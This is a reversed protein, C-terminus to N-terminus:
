IAELIKNSILPIDHQKAKLYMKEGIEIRKEDNEVLMNLVKGAQTIDLYQVHLGISSDIFEMSGGSKEFSVIPNKNIGAELMVLPYPDERSSLFFIDFCALYQLYEATSELLHVHSKIGMKELDYNINRFDTHKDSIGIWIFHVNKSTNKLVQLATLIFLDLGKRWEANACCGIVVAENPINLQKKIEKKDVKSLSIEINTCNIQSYFITIKECKVQHNEILNEKVANSGAFIAKSKKLQFDILEPTSYLQISKELEHCYIVFPCNLWALDALISGNAITNSFIVEPNFTEIAKRSANKGNKNAGFFPEIRVGKAIKQFYNSENNESESNQWFVVETVKNYEEVLDGGNGLLLMTKVTEIGKLYTLLHLLLYQAGAYNADHGIFLIKKHM